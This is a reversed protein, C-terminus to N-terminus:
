RDIFYREGDRRSNGLVKILSFRSVGYYRISHGRIDGPKRDAAFTYVPRGRYTWARVAPVNEGYVGAADLFPPHPVNDIDWNGAPKADDDALVPQWERACNEPSGCISSRYVAPDGPEDCSLSDPTEDQCSFVYTSKGRGDAYVWGALTYHMTFPAPARENRQYVVTQWLGNAGRIKEHTMNKGPLYLLTGKFSWQKTGNELTAINWDGKPEAMLPATLPVWDQVSPWAIVDTAAFLPQNDNTALILGDLTRTLKVNPPFGLPVRVTKWAGFLDGDSGHVNGPAKDKTSTYVFRGEYAWQKSGDPRSKISWRGAPNATASPRFPPWKQICTKQLTKMADSLRYEEGLHHTGTEDLTNLCGPKGSPTEDLVTTYLTMGDFTTYIPGGEISQGMRVDAPIQEFAPSDALSVASAMVFLAAKLAALASSPVLNFATPM